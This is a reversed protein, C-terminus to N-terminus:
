LSEMVRNVRKEDFVHGKSLQAPNTGSYKTVGFTLLRLPLANCAGFPGSVHLEGVVDGDVKGDAGTQGTDHRWSDLHRTM